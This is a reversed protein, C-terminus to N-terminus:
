AADPDPGGEAFGSAAANVTSYERLLDEVRALIRVRAKPSFDVLKRVILNEANREAKVGAVPSLPAQPM